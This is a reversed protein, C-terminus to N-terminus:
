ECFNEFRSPPCLGIAVSAVNIQSLLALIKRVIRETTDKVTKFYGSLELTGSHNGSPLM